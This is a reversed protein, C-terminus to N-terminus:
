TEDFKVSWNNKAIAITIGDYIKKKQIIEGIGTCAALAARECVNGIGTKEKVFDSEEFEGEVKELEESTFTIFPIKEIEVFDLIGNEDKKLDISAIKEIQNMDINNNSITERIAYEIEEKKKGKKCGIGIIYKKPTLVLIKEYIDQDLDFSNDKLFSEVEDFKKDVILVDAKGICKCINKEEYEIIEVEKGSINDICIYKPIGIYIKQNELIKASVNKIADKNYINLNNKKAFLDVAFKERIDTATTIVPVADILEAIKRGIDNAGGVHGALLPIVFNGQEDIVIVPSDTLKNKVSNAIARVAIGTAGIFILCKKKKFQEASWTSM